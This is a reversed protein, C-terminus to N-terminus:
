NLKFTNAEKYLEETFITLEDVLKKMSIINENVESTSAAIEESSASIEETVTLISEMSTTISEKKTFADNVKELNEEISNPIEKIFTVVNELTDKTKSIALTQKQAVMNSKKVTEVSINIAEVLDKILNDIKDTANSTEESLKKVENAVVAFGKGYEGARASEISANLALLNTQYSIDGITHIINLIERSKELLNQMKLTTEDAIERNEKNQTELLNLTNIINENLTSTKEVEKNMATSTDKISNIDTSLTTIENSSRQIEKTTDAIGASIEEMAEKISNSNQETVSTVSDVIYTKEKLMKSTDNIKTIISHMKDLMHNFINSIYGLEDKSNINLRISLDGNSALEMANVIQTLPNIKNTILKRIILISLIFVIVTIIMISVLINYAPKYFDENYCGVNIYWDWPEFYGVANVKPREKTEDPNKWWFHIIGNNKPAKGEEIILKTVSNGKADTVSSINEGEKFPHMVELGNSDIAYMYAKIGLELTENLGRTKGDSEKPNLMKMRFIEQAHNRSIKGEKVEEELSSMMALGMQIRNRLAEEGLATLAKKSSLFSTITMALISVIILLFISIYSSLLSRKLTNNKMQKAM